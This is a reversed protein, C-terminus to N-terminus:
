AALDFHPVQSVGAKDFHFLAPGHIEPELFMPMASHHMVALDVLLFPSADRLRYFTQTYGHTAEDPMRFKLDIPSLAELAREIVQFVEEVRADDVDVQLDVDSWADVRGWSVAGGEWMAHTYDLPELAAHLAAVVQDRTLLPKEM